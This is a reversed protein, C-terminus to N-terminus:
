EKGMRGQVNKKNMDNSIGILMENIRYTYINVTSVIEERVEDLWAREREDDIGNASQVYGLCAKLVVVFLDEVLIDESCKTTFEKM